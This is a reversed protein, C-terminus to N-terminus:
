ANFMAQQSAQGPKIAAAFLAIDATIGDDLTKLMRLTPMISTFLVDLCQGHRNGCCPGPLFCVRV